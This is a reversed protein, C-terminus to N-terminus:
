NSECAKRLEDLTVGWAYNCFGLFPSTENWGAHQFNLVTLTKGEPMGMWAGPSPAESLEFVIHTGTWSSAPSQTPHSSIVEWEIRRNAIREVVRFQVDGHAEGPSHALVLGEDTETETHPAWWTALGDATALADYVARAPADIWLQHYLTAMM